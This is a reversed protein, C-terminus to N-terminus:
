EGSECEASLSECSAWTLNTLTRARRDVHCTDEIAKLNLKGGELKWEYVGVIAYCHPDNFFTVRNESVMFSGLSHWGTNEHFIRFVGEKLSLKWIGGEPLYDPCRRCPVPTGEKPEFKTYLGDLVTPSQPPLPTTYPFPEKQFLASWSDTPTPTGQVLADNKPTPTSHPTATDSAPTPTLESCSVAVPLVVMLIVFLSSLRPSKSRGVM